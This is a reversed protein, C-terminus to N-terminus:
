LINIENIFLLVDLFIDNEINRYELLYIAQNQPLNKGTPNVFNSKLNVNNFNKLQYIHFITGPFNASLGQPWDLISSDSLLIEMDNGTVDARYIRSGVIGVTTFYM